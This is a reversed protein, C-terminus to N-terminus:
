RVVREVTICTGKSFFKAILMIKFTLSGYPAVLLPDEDVM